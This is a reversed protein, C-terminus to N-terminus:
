RVPDKPVPLMAPDTALEAFTAVEKSRDCLHGFHAGENLAMTLARLTAKVPFAIKRRKLIQAIHKAQEAMRFRSSYKIAIRLGRSALDLDDHTSGPPTQALEADIEDLYSSMHGNAVALARQRDWHRTHYETTM